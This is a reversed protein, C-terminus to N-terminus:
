IVAYQVATRPLILTFFHLAYNMCYYYDLAYM